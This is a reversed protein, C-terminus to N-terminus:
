KPKADLSFLLALTTQDAEGTVPLGNRKQFDKVRDICTENYKDTIDASAKFYGLEQLRLKMRRVDEGRSGHKLPTYQAAASETKQVLMLESIAVNNKYRTGKYITIIRLRVASVNRHRGLYVKQWDNRLKDDKLTVDMEDTFASHGDYLFSVAIKKPRSNLLYHDQGQEIKWSGSKFWIEDVTSGPALYIDLAAKGLPTTRTSFQWSTEENDDAARFGAFEDFSGIASNASLATAVNQHIDDYGPVLILASPTEASEPIM